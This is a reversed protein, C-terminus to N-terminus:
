RLAHWLPAITTHAWRAYLFPLLWLFRKGSKQLLFPNAGVAQHILILPDDPKVLFPHLLEDEETREGYCHVLRLEIGGGVHFGKEISM